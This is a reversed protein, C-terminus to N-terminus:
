CRKVTPDLGLVIKIQGMLSIGGNTLTLNNIGGRGDRRAFNSWM